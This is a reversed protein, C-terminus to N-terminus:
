FGTIGDLVKFYNEFTKRCCMPNLIRVGDFKTGAMAFSMAIRHDDYTHIDAPKM